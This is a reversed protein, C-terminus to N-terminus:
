APSLAQGRFWDITRRLGEEVPVRPEWDLEKRALTIDPQRVSPDDQPRDVFVIESRSGALDRIWEALELMSLEHPNGINMPGEHASRLLRVVGEVLDDVYM